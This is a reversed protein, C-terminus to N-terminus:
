LKLRRYPFVAFNIATASGPDVQEIKQLKRYLLVSDITKDRLLKIILDVQTFTRIPIKNKLDEDSMDDIIWKEPIIDSM